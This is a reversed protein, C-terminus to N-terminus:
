VFFFMQYAHMQVTNDNVDKQDNCRKPTYFIMTCLLQKYYKQNKNM